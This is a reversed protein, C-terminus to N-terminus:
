ADLVVLVLLNEPWSLCIGASQRLHHLHSRGSRCSGVIEENQIARLCATSIRLKSKLTVSFCIGISRPVSRTSIILLPKLRKIAGLILNASRHHQIAILHPDKVGGSIRRVVDHAYGSWLGVVFVACDNAIRRPVM